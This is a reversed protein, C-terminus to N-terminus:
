CFFYGYQADRIPFLTLLKTNIQETYRLTLLGILMEFHYVPRHVSHMMQFTYFSVQIKGTFDLAKAILDEAEKISLEEEEGVSFLYVTVNIDFSM